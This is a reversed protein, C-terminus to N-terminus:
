QRAGEDREPPGSPPQSKVFSIALEILALVDPEPPRAPLTAAAVSRLRDAEVSAAGIVYDAAAARAAVERERASAAIRAAEGQAEAIVEDAMQRGAAIDITCREDTAALLAFVPDLEARFESARDAPM